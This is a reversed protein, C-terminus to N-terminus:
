AVYAEVTQRVMRTLSFSGAVFRRAQCARGRRGEEGGAEGLALLRATVEEVCPDSASRLVFGTEGDLLTEAAGGAPTTVVPVGAAQAEILVNPLGECRSLLLFADMRSIWYAAEASRGTFLVRDAIGFAAARAEAEARLPGDGVLVFRADPRRAALRAACEVWLLPRKNEDLRMVGGLTFGGGTRADFAAMAARAAASGCARQPSLGNPVVRVREPPIGIWEAYRSAAFRSNATMVVGPTRLLMPYLTAYEPGDREPRDPPPASRVSLVIRPVGALLAALAGALVSGDQWLHVVDPEAARIADTLRATGEAVRPPLFRLLGRCGRAASREPDGGFEPVAKYTTVPIRHRRLEPLFFDAGPRDSLSRCCVQVPGGDLRVGGVARGAVRARELGVATNVLQREAGGAGLSGNVMLVRGLRGPEACAGARGAAAKELLHALVATAANAPGPGDAPAIGALLRLDAELRSSAAALRPARAMRALGSAVVGHARWPDGRRESAQAALLYGMEFGPHARLLAEFAADSREREGAEAWSRALLLMDEASVPESPFARELARLAAAKGATRATWRLTLLFAEHCRPFRHLVGFWARIAGARGHVGEFLRAALVQLRETEPHLEVSALVADLGERATGAAIHRACLAEAEDLAARPAPGTGRGRLAAGTIADDAPQGDPTGAAGAPASSDFPM